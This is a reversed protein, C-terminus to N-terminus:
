GEPGFDLSRDEGDPTAAVPTDGAGIPAGVATITPAPPMPVGVDYDEPTPMQLERAPVNQLAIAMYRAWIETPLTGGTVRDTTTFNDHGVWVGAVYGPTFGIFWADRYDNGTGTKGAIQHSEMRARTGTGSQVVREMMYNMYRMPREEIVRQRHQPRWSWMTENNNARRIRAVGHAEV